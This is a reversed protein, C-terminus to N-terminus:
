LVTSATWHSRHTLLLSTDLHPSVEWILMGNNALKEQLSESLLLKSLSVGRYLREQKPKRKRDEWLLIVFKLDEAKILNQYSKTSNMQVPAKDAHLRSWPCGGHKRLENQLNLVTLIQFIFHIDQFPYPIEESIWYESSDFLENFSPTYRHTGVKELGSLLSVSTVFLPVHVSNGKMIIEIM